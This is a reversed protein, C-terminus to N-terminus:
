EKIGLRAKVQSLVGSNVINAEKIKTSGIWLTEFYDRFVAVIRPHKVSLYVEGETPLTPVRYFGLVVEESDIIVYSILPVSVHSIDYYGLHYSYYGKDILNASRRFYHEDTLSSVERYKVTGKKCVLEVAKLYNNYAEDELATRYGKRSGWTIDDVSENASGLRTAVYNYLHGVSKFPLVEIGELRRMEEIVREASTEVKENVKKSYDQERFAIFAILMAILLLTIASIRELLWPINTLFGFLDAISVAAAILGSLVLVIKTVLAKTGQM